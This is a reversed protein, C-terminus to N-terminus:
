SMINENCSSKSNPAVKLCSLYYFSWAVALFPALKDFCSLTVAMMSVFTNRLVPSSTKWLNVFVSM